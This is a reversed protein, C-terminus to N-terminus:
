KKISKVPPEDEDLLSSLADSLDNKSVEENLVIEPETIDIESEKYANIDFPYEVAESISNDENSVLEKAEAISEVAEYENLTQAQSMSSTNVGREDDKYVFPPAVPVYSEPPLPAITETLPLDGPLSLYFHRPSLTKIQSATVVQRETTNKSWSTGKGSGGSYTKTDVEQKGISNSM